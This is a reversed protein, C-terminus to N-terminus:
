CSVACGHGFWVTDNAQFGNEAPGAQGPGGDVALDGFARERGLDPDADVAGSPFFGVDVAPDLIRDPPPRLSFTVLASLDPHWSHRCSLLPQVVCDLKETSFPISGGTHNQIPYNQPYRGINM